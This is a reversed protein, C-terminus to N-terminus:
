YVYYDVDEQNSHVVLWSGNDISSLSRYIVKFPKQDYFVSSQFGEQDEEILRLTAGGEQTLHYFVLRGEGSPTEWWIAFRGENNKEIFYIENLTYDGLGELNSSDIELEIAMELDASYRRLSLNDGVHFLLNYQSLLPHFSKLSYVADFKDDLFITKVREFQYNEVNFHYISAGTSSQILLYLYSGGQFVIADEILSIERIKGYHDDNVSVSFTQSEENFHPSRLQWYLTRDVNNWGVLFCNKNGDEDIDRLFIKNYNSIVDGAPLVMSFSYLVYRTVTQWGKPSHVSYIYSFWVGISDYCVKRGDELPQEEGWSERLTLLDDLGDQGLDSISVSHSLTDFGNMSLKNVGDIELTVLGQSAQTDREVFRAYGPEGLIM